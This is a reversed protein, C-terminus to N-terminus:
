PRAKPHTNMAIERVMFMLMGAFFCAAAGSIHLVDAASQAAARAMEVAPEGLPEHVVLATLRQFVVFLVNILAAAIFLWTVLLAAAYHPVGTPAARKAVLPVLPPAPPPPKVERVHEALIKREKLKAQLDAYDKAEFTQAVPEGSELHAGSVNWKM